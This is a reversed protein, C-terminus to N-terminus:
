PRAPPFLDHVPRIDLSCVLFERVQSLVFLSCVDCMTVLVYCSTVQCDNLRALVLLDVDAWNPFDAHALTDSEDALPKVFYIEARYHGTGIAQTWM